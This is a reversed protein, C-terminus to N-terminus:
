ARANGEKAHVKVQQGPLRRISQAGIGFVGCM